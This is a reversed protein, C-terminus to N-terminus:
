TLPSSMSLCVSLQTEVNVSYIGSFMTVTQNLVLLQKLLLTTSCNESTLGMIRNFSRPHITSKPHITEGVVGLFLLLYTTRLLLQVPYGVREVKVLMTEYNDNLFVQGRTTPLAANLFVLYIINEVLTKRKVLRMFERFIRGINM